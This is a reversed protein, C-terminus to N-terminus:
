LPRRPIEYWTFLSERVVPTDYKNQDFRERNKVTYLLEGFAKETDVGAYGNIDDTYNRCFEPKIKVTLYLWSALESVSNGPYYTRPAVGLDHSGGRLRLLCM